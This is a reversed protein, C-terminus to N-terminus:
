SGKPSIGYMRRIEVLWELTRMLETQRADMEEVNPAECDKLYELYREYTM